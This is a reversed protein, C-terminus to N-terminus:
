DLTKNCSTAISHFLFYSFLLSSVQRCPECVECVRSRWAIGVVDGISFNSAKTGEGLYVIVGIGEHGGVLPRIPEASAPGGGDRSYVDGHCVGSFDLRVIAERLGMVPFPREVFEYPQGYSGTLIAAYNRPSSCPGM